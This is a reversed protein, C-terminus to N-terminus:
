PDPSGGTHAAQWARGPFAQNIARHRARNVGPSNNLLLLALPARTKNLLGALLNAKFLCSSLNSPPRRCGPGGPRSLLQCWRLLQICSLHSRSLGALQIVSCCGELGAKAHGMAGSARKVEMVHFVHFPMQPLFPVPGGLSARFLLPPAGFLQEMALM